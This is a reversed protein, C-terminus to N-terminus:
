KEHTNLQYKLIPTHKVAVIHTTVFPIIDEFVVGGMLNSLKTAEEKV